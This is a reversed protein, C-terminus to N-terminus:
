GPQLLSNKMLVLIMPFGVGLSAGFDLYQESQFIPHLRHKSLKTYPSENPKYEDLVRHSNPFNNPFTAEFETCM